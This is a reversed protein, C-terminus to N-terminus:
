SEVNLFHPCTPCADLLCGFLEFGLRLDVGFGPGPDPLEWMETVGPDVDLCRLTGQM